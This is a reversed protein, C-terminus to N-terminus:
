VVSKRDREERGSRLVGASSAAMRQLAAVAQEARAEQVYGLVGNVLIILSIVVVEFPVGDAGELLWAVLSVGVAAILLYTLPDAFQAAFKRWASVAEAADLQNRGFRDLRAAAESTSLGVVLDSSMEAAVDVAERRWPERTQLVSSTVDAM